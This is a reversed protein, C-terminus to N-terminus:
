FASLVTQAVENYVVGTDVPDAARASTFRGGPLGSM